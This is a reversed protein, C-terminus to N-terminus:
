RAAKLAAKVDSVGLYANLKRASGATGVAFRYSGPTVRGPEFQLEQSGMEAGAVNARGIETAANVAAHSMPRESCLPWRLAASCSSTPRPAARETAPSMPTANRM